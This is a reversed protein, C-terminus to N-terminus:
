ENKGGAKVIEIARQYAYDQGDYLSYQLREYSSMELSDIESKNSVSKQQEEELQKIVNEGEAKLKNVEECKELYLKDIDKLKSPEDCIDEYQALKELLVRIDNTTLEAPISNDYLEGNFTVLDNKDQRKIRTTLRGM